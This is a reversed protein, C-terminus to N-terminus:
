VRHIQALVSPVGLSRCGKPDMSFLQFVLLIQFNIQSGNKLTWKYGTLKKADFISTGQNYNVVLLETSLAM